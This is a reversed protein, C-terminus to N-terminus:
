YANSSQFQKQFKMENNTHEKYKDNLQQSLSARHKDEQNLEKERSRERKNQGKKQNRM